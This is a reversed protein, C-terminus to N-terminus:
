RSELHGLGARGRHAGARLAHYLSGIEMQTDSLIAAAAERHAAIREVISADGLPTSMRQEKLAELEAVQAATLGLVDIRVAKAEEMFAERGARHEDIAARQEDTLLPEIEAHAAERLEQAQTRFEQPTIQGSRLQEHLAEFQPRFSELVERIAQRQEDTVDPLFGAAGNRLGRGFGGGPGGHRHAFAPPRDGARAAMQEIREAQRDVIQAIQEATLASRLEGALRWLAGPEGMRDSFSAALDNVASTQSSTLSLGETVETLVGRVDTIAVEQEVTDDALDTVAEDCASFGFTLAVLATTAWRDARKWIKM